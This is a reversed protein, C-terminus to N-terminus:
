CGLQFTPQMSMGELLEKQELSLDQTKAVLEDEDATDQTSVVEISPPTYMTPRPALLKALLDLDKFEQGKIEKTLTV